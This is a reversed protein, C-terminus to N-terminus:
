VWTWTDYLNKKKLRQIGTAHREKCFLKWCTGVPTGCGWHRGPRDTSTKALWVRRRKWWRWPMAAGCPVPRAATCPHPPRRRSPVSSVRGTKTGTLGPHHWPPRHWPRCIHRIRCPTDPFSFGSAALCRETFASGPCM